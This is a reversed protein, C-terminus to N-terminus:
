STGLQRALRVFERCTRGASRKPFRTVGDSGATARDLDLYDVVDANAPLGERRRRELILGDQARGGGDLKLGDFVMQSCDYVLMM